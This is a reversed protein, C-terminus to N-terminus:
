LMSAVSGSGGTLAENWPFQASVSRSGAEVELLVEVPTFGAPLSIRGRQQQYYKFQFALDEPDIGLEEAGLRRTRDNEIGEVVLRTVGDIRRTKKLNQALVLRFEYVRDSETPGLSFEHVALGRVSGGAELLRQYFNVEERQRALEADLEFMQRSLERTANESVEQDRTARALSQRLTDVEGNAEALAERLSSESNVRQHYVTALLAGAALGLLPGLLVRPSLRPATEDGTVIRPKPRDTNRPM